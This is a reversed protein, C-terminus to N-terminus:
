PTEPPAKLETVDCIHTTPEPQVTETSDSAARLQAQNAAWTFLESLYYSSNNLYTSSSMIIPYMISAEKGSSLFTSRHPRYLICHGLEHHMLLEKQTESVVDWFDPDLTVKRGGYGTECLGIVGSGLYDLSARVIEVPDSKMEQTLSIGQNSADDVFKQVYNAFSAEGSYLESTPTSPSPTPTPPPPTPTPSPDPDPNPNIGGGTSDQPGTDHVWDTEIQKKAAESSNCATLGGSWFVSLVLTSILALSQRNM